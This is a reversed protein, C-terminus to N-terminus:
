FDEDPSIDPNYLSPHGGGHETPKEIPKQEETPKEMMSEDHTTTHNNDYPIRNTEENTIVEKPEDIQKNEVVIPTNQQPQNNEIVVENSKNYIETEASNEKNVESNANLPKNASKTIKEGEMVQKMAKKYADFTSEEIEGNMQLLFLGKSYTHSYLMASEKGLDDYYEKTSQLDNTNEFQFIRANQNNDVEFILAKKAKMPAAGYDKTTMEKENSVNLEANKFGKAIDSLGVNTGCASLLFLGIVLLVIKKM